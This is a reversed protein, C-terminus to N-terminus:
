PLRLAGRAAATGQQRLPRAITYVRGTQNFLCIDPGDDCVGNYLAIPDSVSGDAHVTGFALQPREVRYLRISKEPLTVVETGDDTDVYAVM